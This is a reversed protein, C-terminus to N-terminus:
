NAGAWMAVAIIGHIIKPLCLLCLAIGIYAVACANKIM